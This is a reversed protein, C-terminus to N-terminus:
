ITGDERYAQFTIEARRLTEELAITADKLHSQQLDIYALADILDYALTAIDGVAVIADPELPLSRNQDRVAIAFLEVKNALASGTAVVQETAADFRLGIQCLRRIAEARTGIKNAFRWNDVAELESDSMMFPIRNQRPEDAKM